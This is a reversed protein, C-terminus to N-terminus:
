APVPCLDGGCAYQDLGPGLAPKECALACLCAASLCEPVCRRMTLFLPPPSSFAAASRTESRISATITASCTTSPSPPRSGTRIWWYSVRGNLMTYAPVGYPTYLVGGPSGVDFSKEVWTVASVYHVDIGLDFNAKTRWQASAYVKHQATNGLTASVPGPATDRTCGGAADGPLRVDERVLLERASGRRGRSVM